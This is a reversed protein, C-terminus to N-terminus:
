EEPEQHPSPDDEEADPGPDTDALRQRQLAERLAQQRRETTEVQERTADGGFCRAELLLLQDIAKLDGKMLNSDLVRVALEARTIERGDKLVVPRKLFKRLQTDFRHRGKPRGKPNGSQGKKYC